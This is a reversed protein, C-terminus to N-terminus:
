KATKGSRDLPSQGRSPAGRSRVADFNALFRKADKNTMKMIVESASMANATKTKTTKANAAKAKKTRVGSDKSSKDQRKAM